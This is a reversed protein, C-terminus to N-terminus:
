EESMRVWLGGQWHFLTLEESTRCTLVVFLRVKLFLTLLCKPIIKEKGQQGEASAWERPARSDPPQAALDMELSSFNQLLRILFFSM